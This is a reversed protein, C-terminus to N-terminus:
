LSYVGAHSMIQKIIPQFYKEFFIEPKIRKHDNRADIFEDGCCEGTSAWCSVPMGAVLMMTVEPLDGNSSRLHLFGRKDIIAQSGDKWYWRYYKCKTRKFIDEKDFIAECIVGSSNRLDASLYISKKHLIVQTSKITLRGERSISINKCKSVIQYKPSRMALKFLDSTVPFEHDRTIDDLGQTAILDTRWDNGITKMNRFDYVISASDAVLYLRQDRSFIVNNVNQLRDSFDEQSVTYDKLDLRYLKLLNRANVVIYCVNPEIWNFHYNGNEIFPMMELAGGEKPSIFLVRQNMNIAVVRGDANAAMPSQGYLIRRKTVLLPLPTHTLFAPLAADLSYKVPLKPSVKSPPVLLQTIDLKADNLVTSRGNVLESFRITGDRNLSILFSLVERIKSFSGHFSPSLLQRNETILVFENEEKGSFKKIVSVLAEGPHLGHHLYEMAAIVGKKDMLSVEAYDDAGLVFAQVEEGHKCNRAFALAAAMAYVRPIGWMRITSDILIIKKRKPHQPPEERRFYLAENNVLRATLLLEDQALESLLLKDYNGRNTIDSIGGIPLDGASLSHMPISIVPLLSKAINSIGATKPDQLLEDLLDTFPAEQEPIELLKPIDEIGTRLKIELSEASPFREFAKELCALDAKLYDATDDDTPVAYDSSFDGAELMPVVALFDDKSLMVPSEAFLESLLQVRKQASRLELPLARINKLLNLVRIVQPDSVKDRAAGLMRLLALGERPGINHQCAHFVLLFAGLRPMGQTNLQRFTQFLVDRYCITMGDISWALVRDNDTWHWFYDKPMRLYWVTNDIQKAM